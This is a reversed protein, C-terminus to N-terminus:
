RAASASHLRGGKSRASASPSITAPKWVSYPPMRKAINAFASNTSAITSAASPAVSKRPPQRPGSGNSGNVDIGPGSHIIPLM